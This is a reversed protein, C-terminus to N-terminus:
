FKFIYSWDIVTHDFVKDTIEPRNYNSIALFTDNGIQFPFVYDSRNDYVDMFKAVDPSVIYFTDDRYEPFRNEILDRSSHKNTFLTISLSRKIIKIRTKNDNSDFIDHIDSIIVAVGVPPIHRNAVIIEEGILNVVKIESM